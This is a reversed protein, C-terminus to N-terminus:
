IKLNDKNICSHEGKPINIGMNKLVQLLCPGYFKGDIEMASCGLSLNFGGDPTDIGEVYGQTAIALDATLNNKIPSKDPSYHLEIKEGCRAM